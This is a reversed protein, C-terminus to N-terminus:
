FLKKKWFSLLKNRFSVHQFGFEFESMNYSVAEIKRKTVDKM